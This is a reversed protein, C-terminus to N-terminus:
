VPQGRCVRRDVGQSRGRRDAALRLQMRDLRVFLVHPHRKFYDGILGLSDEALVIDSDVFTVIDGRAIKGGQNRGYGEGKNQELTVLRVDFRNSIEPTSDSSADDVVIVELPPHRSSVISSLCREITREANYAPVVVSITPAKGLRNTM